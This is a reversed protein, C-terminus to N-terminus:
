LTRCPLHQAKIKTFPRYSFTTSVSAKLYFTRSLKGYKIMNMKRGANTFSCAVESVSFV